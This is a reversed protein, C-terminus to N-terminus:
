AGRQIVKLSDRSNLGMSYAAAESVQYVFTLTKVGNKARRDSEVTPVSYENLGCFRSLYNSLDLTLDGLISHRDKSKTWQDADINLNVTLEFASLGIYDVQRLSIRATGFQSMLKQTYSDFEPVLTEVDSNLGGDLVRLQIGTKTKFVKV